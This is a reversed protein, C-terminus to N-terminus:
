LRIPNRGRRSYVSEWGSRLADDVEHQEGAAGIDSVQEQRAGGVCARAPSVTPSPRPRAPRM